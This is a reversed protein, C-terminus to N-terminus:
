EIEVVTVGTGGENWEGLRFSKVSPNSKLYETIKKRLAGTGKGHIIDIRHLGNVIADDITKDVIQIAEEAYLGRLDIERKIETAIDVGFSKTMPEPQNEKAIILDSKHVKFRLEGALVIYHNKDVVDVIKGTVDSEKMRVCDGIKFEAPATEVIELESKLKKIEDNLKNYEMRAEKVIEKDAAHEKIERIISEISARAKRVIEEAEHVATLRISKLEKNLSNIKDEYNHVLTNLKQKEINVQRLTAEMEISRKQLDSILKDLTYSDNGRLEIAKNIINKPLSLREAMEIAYSSGLQGLQFRYTPKLSSQDFEMAANIIGETHYAFSKLSSHHTTAVTFAGKRTLEELVSASLSFGENPDTGSGIEDILILSKDTSKELIEKINKLHSSFSSLDDEISQEDGIDVFIEEFLPLTSGEGAPIHCGSQALISLLGITKLTVTKGGANPGTIVITKIDDGIDANLPVVENFKHLQLLLPHRGNIIKFAKDLNFAPRTGLTEISYKAKAYVFDLEAIIQLNKILEQACEKVQASLERLIKEIEQQEKFQLSRIENNLELTETPEIFVTAGSTSTSHIFGAVKNKHETKVPIVMRGERTTIIEEQSWDRESVQKLISELRKRLQELKQVIHKRINSLEKTASDKIEGQEDISQNINYELVNNLYLSQVIQFITPVLNRKRSFFKHIFKSSELLVSIHRLEAPTLTYYEILTRKIINRLDPLAPISFDGESEILLKMESTLTLNREIEQLSSSPVLNEAHEKGLASSAHHQIRAKIKDFELKSFSKLFEKMYM